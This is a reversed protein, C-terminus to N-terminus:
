PRRTSATRGRPPEAARARPRWFGRSRPGQRPRRVDAVTAKGCGSVSASGSPRLSGQWCAVQRVRGRRPRTSERLGVPHGSTTVGSLRPGSSERTLRPRAVHPSQPPWTCATQGGRVCPGAARSRGTSGRHGDDRSMSGSGAGPGRGRAAGAPLPSAEGMRVVATGWWSSSWRAVAHLAAPCPTRDHGGRHPGPRDGLGAGDGV